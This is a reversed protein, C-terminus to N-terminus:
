LTNFPHLERKAQIYAQQAEESTKFLGLETVRGSTQV